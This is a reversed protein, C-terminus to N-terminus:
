LFTLLKYIGDAPQLPFIGEISFKNRINWLTWLLATCCIWLVRKAQGIQKHMFRHVDDFCAPNWSCSLPERVMSWMFKALTCAFFIHDNDKYEGYM